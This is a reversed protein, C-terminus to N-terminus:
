LSKCTKAFILIAVPITIIQAISVRLTAGFAIKIVQLDLIVPSETSLGISRGWALWNFYKTGVCVSALFAGLTIGALLFFIFAINKKFNKSM